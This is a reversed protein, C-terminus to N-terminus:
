GNWTEPVSDEAGLLRATELLVRGLAALALFVFGIPMLAKVLYRDALGGYDSQEGTKWAFEVFGLSLWGIVACFPLLFLLDGLLNVGAKGRRGFASYLLDVRVHRDEALAFALGPMVMVAMLHWQLEALGSMTLSRGFLPLDAQWEALTSLRFQAGIVALLVLALLPLLLWAAARGPWAGIQMLVRGTREMRSPLSM